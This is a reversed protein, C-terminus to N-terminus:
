YRTEFNTFLGTYNSWNTEVKEVVAEPPGIELQKVLRELKEKDGEAQVEVKGNPLNRVYGKLGLAKAARSVYARFYVGQVHGEVIAKVSALEPM